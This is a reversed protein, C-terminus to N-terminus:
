NLKNSIGYNRFVKGDEDSLRWRNKAFYKSLYNRVNRKVFEIGTKRHWLDEFKLQDPIKKGKLNMRDTAVCLHYHFHYNDKSIEMTWIYGRVNFGITRFKRKVDEIMRTWEKRKMAQDAETFTILFMSIKRKEYMPQYYGCFQNLRDIKRKNARKQDDTLYEVQIIEGTEADVVNCTLTTNYRPETRIILGTKERTSTDSKHSYLCTRIPERVDDFRLCGKVYNENPRSHKYRFSNPLPIYRGNTIEKATIAKTNSNQVRAPIKTKSIVVGMRDPNLLLVPRFPL